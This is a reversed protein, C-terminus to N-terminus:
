RGRRVKVASFGESQGQPVQAGLCVCLCVFVGERNPSAFCSLACVGLPCLLAENERERECVCVCETM